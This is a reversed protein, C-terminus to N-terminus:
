RCEEYRLDLALHDTLQPPSYARDTLGCVKDEKPKSGGTAQQKKPPM